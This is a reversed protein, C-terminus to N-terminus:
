WFRGVDDPNPRSFNLFHVFCESAHHSLFESKTVHKVLQDSVTLPCAFAKQSLRLWLGTCTGKIRNGHDGSPYKKGSVTRSHATHEGSGISPFSSFRKENPTAKLDFKQRRVALNCIL